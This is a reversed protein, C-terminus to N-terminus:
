RKPTPRWGAPDHYLLKQVDAQPLAFIDPIDLKDQSGTKVGVPGVM